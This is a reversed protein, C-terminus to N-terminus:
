SEDAMYDLYQQQLNGHEVVVRSYLTELAAFHEAFPGESKSKLEAILSTKIKNQYNLTSLTEEFHKVLPNV